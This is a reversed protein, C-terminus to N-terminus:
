YNPFKARWDGTERSSPIKRLLPGSFRNKGWEESRETEARFTEERGASPTKYSKVRGALKGHYHFELGTWLNPSGVLETVEVMMISGVGMFGM